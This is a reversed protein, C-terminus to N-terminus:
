SQRARLQQQLQTELESLQLVTYGALDDVSSEQLGLLQQLLLIRGALVGQELGEQIGEQRARRLCSEADRQFKLRANYLMQAEPTRSIM